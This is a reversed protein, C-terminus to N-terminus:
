GRGCVYPYKSKNVQSVRMFFSDAKTQRPYYRSRSVRTYYDGPRKALNLPSKSVRTFIFPKAFYVNEDNIEAESAAAIAVAVVLVSILRLASTMNMSQLLLVRDGSM